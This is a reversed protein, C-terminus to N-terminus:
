AVVCEDNLSKAIEFDKSDKLVVCQVLGTVDRLILFVIKSQSRITDVSAKILIEEGVHNKADKIYVREM